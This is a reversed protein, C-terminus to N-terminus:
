RSAAPASAAPESVTSAHNGAEGQMDLKDGTKALVLLALAAFALFAAFIKWMVM